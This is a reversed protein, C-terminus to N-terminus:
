GGQKPKAQAGPQAADTLVDAEENELYRYTQLTADIILPPNEGDGADSQAKQSGPTARPDVLASAEVTVIRSLAAITSVFAGFQHYNARAKITIPKAAYFDRPQEAEPRFLEFALGNVRGTKSIDELLDPMETSTPLQKLMTKLMGQLEAIQKRYADLNAMVGQKRVFDQKLKQEELRANDLQTLLDQADFYYGLGGVAAMVLLVSFLKLPWPWIGANNFDLNNLDSLKM